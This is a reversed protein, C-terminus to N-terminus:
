VEEITLVEAAETKISERTETNIEEEGQEADRYGGGNSRQNNIQIILNRQALTLNPNNM